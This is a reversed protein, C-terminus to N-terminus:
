VATEKTPEQKKFQPVVKKLANVIPTCVFCAVAAEILGNVITVLQILEQGLVESFFAQLMILYLVTNTLSGIIAPVGVNVLSYKTHFLKSSGTVTFPMLLRPVILMVLLLALNHEMLMPALPNYALQIISTLVFVAALPLGVRWGLVLTGIIVPLCMLTVEIGWPTRIYGLPTLGLILTIAALVATLTLTRTKVKM